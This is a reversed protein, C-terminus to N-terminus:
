CPCELDPLRLLQPAVLGAGQRYILHRFRSIGAQVNLIELQGDGDLDFASVPDVLAAEIAAPHELRPPAGPRVDFLATLVGTFSSCGEGATASVLVVRSGAQREFVRLELQHRTPDLHWPGRAGPQEEAYRRQILAYEPLRQFAKLAADRLAGEPPKPSYVRPLPDGARLAWLSGPCPPDLVGVLARGGQASLAWGEEVLKAEPWGADNGEDDRAFSFHPIVHGRLALASVKTACVAGAADVAQVPAGLWAKATPPLRELDVDQVVELVPPDGASRRRPGRGWDEQADEDLVLFGSAVMRLKLASRPPADREINSALMEERAIRLAGADAVLLLEKPGSDRYTGSSWTQEFRVRALSATVAIQPAQVGVQMPRQFMKARDEMWARRGLATTRPGSRKVGTFRPAYLAEYAAYDGRNQAAAWAELLAKAAPESLATQVPSSAPTQVPSHAPASSPGGAGSPESSASPGRSCALLGHFSLVVLVTRLSVRLCHVRASQASGGGWTM